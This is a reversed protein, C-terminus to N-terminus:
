PRGLRWPRMGTWTPSPMTNPSRPPSVACVILMLSNGACVWVGTALEVLGGVEGPAAPINHDALLALGKAGLGLTAMFGAHTSGTPPLWGCSFMLGYRTSFKMM